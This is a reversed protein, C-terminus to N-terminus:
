PREHLYGKPYFVSDDFDNGVEALEDLLADIREKFKYLDGDPFTGCKVYVKWVADYADCLLKSIEVEDLDDFQYDFDYKRKM